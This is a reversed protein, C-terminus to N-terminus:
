FYKTCDELNASRLWGGVKQVALEIRTKLWPKDQLLQDVQESTMGTRKFSGSASKSRNICRPRAMPVEMFEILESVVETTDEKMREYCVTQVSGTYEQIWKQISKEWRPVQEGVFAAFTGNEFLSEDAAGTHSHRHNNVRNFESLLARFPNRILLLVKPFTTALPLGSAAALKRAIGITHMKVGVTRTDNWPLLEGKFGQDVLKGDHYVSGTFYGSAMHILHRLWTNGSGPFSTIVTKPLNQDSFRFKIDVCSSLNVKQPPPIHQERLIVPDQRTSTLSTNNQEKGGYRLLRAVQLAAASEAQSPQDLDLTVEAPVLPAPPKFSNIRQRWRRGPLDPTALALQLGVCIAFKFM